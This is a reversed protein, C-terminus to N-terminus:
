RAPFSSYIGIQMKIKQTHLAKKQEADNLKNRQVLEQKEAHVLMQEVEGDWEMQEKISSVSQKLENIHSRLSQISSTSNNISEFAETKKNNFGLIQTSISKKQLTLQEYEGLKSRLEDIGSRAKDRKKIVNAHHEKIQSAETLLRNLSGVPDKSEIEATENKVEKIRRETDRQHRGVGIRASGARERYDELKGIQLLDDIM